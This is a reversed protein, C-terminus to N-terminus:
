GTTIIVLHLCSDSVAQLCSPSAASSSAFNQNLFINWVQRSPFTPLIVAASFLTFSQHSCWRSSRSHLHNSQSLSKETWGGTLYEGTLKSIKQLIHRQSFLFFPSPLSIPHSIYCGQQVLGSPSSSSPCHRTHIILYLFM